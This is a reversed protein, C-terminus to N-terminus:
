AKGRRYIVALFTVLTALTLKYRYSESRGCGALALGMAAILALVAVRRM